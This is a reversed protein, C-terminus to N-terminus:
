NNIIFKRAVSVTLSGSGREVSSLAKDLCGTLISTPSMGLLRVGGMVPLESPGFSLGFNM